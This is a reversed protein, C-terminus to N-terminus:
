LGIRRIVWAGREPPPSEPDPELKASVVRKLEFGEDGLLPGFGASPNRFDAKELTLYHVHERFKGEFFSEPKLRWSRSKDSADTLTLLLMGPDDGQELSAEVKWREKEFPSLDVARGEDLKWTVAGMGKSLSMLHLAQDRWMVGDEGFKWDGSVAVESGMSFDTLSRGGKAMDCPSGPLSPPVEVPETEEADSVLVPVPPKEDVKQPTVPADVEPVTREQVEEEPAQAGPRGLVLSVVLVATAVVALVGKGRPRKGGSAVAEVAVRLDTASAYRDEPRPELSRRVVEDVKPNLKRLTSPPKWSGRPMDGTLLEYFLVGVSYLDARRDVTKGALQEPAMYELTGMLSGSATLRSGGEFGEASVAQALGFDAVKVRGQRDLLVNSPKIDRHVLGADHAHELAECIEKVVRLAEAEPLGGQAVVAALDRGEVHEMVLYWFGDTTQGVDFVRVIHPHDLRAMAKAEREFRRVFDEHQSLEMPLVKVAVERDLGNQRGRYVAGMGGRGITGTLVCRDLMGNLHEPTPPTWDAPHSSPMHISTSQWREM